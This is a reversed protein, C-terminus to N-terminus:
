LLGLRQYIADVNEVFRVPSFLEKLEEYSLVSSVDPDKRLLDLFEGGGEWCRLANRQVWEYAKMREIGKSMLASLVAQSYILGRTLGLNEEVRERRVRLNALLWGLKDLMYDLLITADPFIVREVSSHSIDREHWLAVNELASVLYGRLLRAQGTLRESIIPNKKHPMASSGKQGRSFGEEVELVETRQLHRVEVAFREICAGLVALSALYNAHRDRPVVQTTISAPEIGLRECVFREVEPPNHAFNGVAGSLKGVALEKGALEIRTRARALEDYLLAFKLGFSTPEAHVGHTRGVTILDKYELAKEKALAIVKDLDELLLATAEKVQVGFSTDLLDNSTLGKHLYVAYEGLSESLNQVFAVVDHHTTKEIEEIREVSIKARSRMEEIAELPIWGLLKAQAEATLLEIELMISFKREQSWIRAMAERTYRDIM